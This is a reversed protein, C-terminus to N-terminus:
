SFGRRVEKATRTYMRVMILLWLFFFSLNLIESAIPGWRSSEVKLLNRTLVYTIDIVYAFWLITSTITTVDFTKNVDLALQALDYHIHSLEHVECLNSLKENEKLQQIKSAKAFPFIEYLDVSHLQKELRQNISKFHCRIQELITDLFVHNLYAVGQPIYYYVMFINRTEFDPFLLASLILTPAILIKYWDKEEQQFLPTFTEEVVNLKLLLSKLTNSRQYFSVLSTTIFLFGMSSIVAHVTLLKSRMSLLFSGWLFSYYYYIIFVPLCCIRSIFCSFTSTSSCSFQIVGVLRLMIRQWLPIKELLCM